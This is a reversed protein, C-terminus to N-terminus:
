PFPQVSGPVRECGKDFRGDHKGTLATASPENNMVGRKWPLVHFCLVSVSTIFVRELAVIADGGAASHMSCVCGHQSLESLESARRAAGV